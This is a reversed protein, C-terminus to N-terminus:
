STAIHGSANAGPLDLPADTAAGASGIALLNRDSSLHEPHPLLPLGDGGRDADVALEAVPAGEGRHGEQEVRGGADDSGGPAEDVQQAAVVTWTPSKRRAVHVDGGDGRVAREVRPARRRGHKAEGCRTRRAEEGDPVTQPWKAAGRAAPRFTGPYPSGERGTRSGPFAVRRATSNTASGRAGM